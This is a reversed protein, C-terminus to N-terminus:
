SKEQRARVSHVIRRLPERIAGRLGLAARILL